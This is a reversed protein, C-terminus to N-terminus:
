FPRGFMAGVTDARLSPTVFWASRASPEKGNV